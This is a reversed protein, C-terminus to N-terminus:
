CSHHNVFRHAPASTPPQTRVSTCIGVIDTEAGVLVLLALTDDIDCGIDTIILVKDPMTTVATNNELEITSQAPPFSIRPLRLSIRIITGDM